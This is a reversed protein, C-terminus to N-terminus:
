VPFVQSCWSVECVGACSEWSLGPPKKILMRKDVAVFEAYTGGYVLACVEDGVHWVEDDVSVIV